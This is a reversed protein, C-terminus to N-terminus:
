FYDHYIIKLKNLIGPLSYKELFLSRSERQKTLGYELLGLCTAYLSAKTVKSFYKQKPFGITTHIGLYSEIKELFGDLTAGQGIAIIKKPKELPSIETLAEKIKELLRTASEEIVAILDKRNINKYVNSAKIIVQQDERSSDFSVSGHSIKIEDALKPALDFRKAIDITISDSGFPIIKAKFLRGNQFILLSTLESGVDILVCGYKKDDEDLVSFNAAYAGYAFEDADIGSQSLTKVFTDLMNARAVVFLSHMNLCHGYIGLPNIVKNDDLLFYQPISHLLDEGFKTHINRAYEQLKDIDDQVVIKNARDTLPIVAEIERFDLVTGNISVYFKSIRKKALTRLEEIISNLSRNLDAVDKVLGQSIGQALTEKFYVEEVELNRNVKALCAKIQYSGVDLACINKTFM